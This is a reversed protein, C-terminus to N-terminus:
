IKGVHDDRDQYQSLKTQMDCGKWQELLFSIEFILLMSNLYVDLIRTFMLANQHSFLVQLLSRIEGLVRLIFALTSLSWLVDCLPSQPVAPFIKCFVMREM